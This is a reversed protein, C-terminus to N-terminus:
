GILCADHPINSLLPRILESYFENSLTRGNIFQSM